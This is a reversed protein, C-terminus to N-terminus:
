YGRKQVDVDIFGHRHIITERASVLKNSVVNGSM